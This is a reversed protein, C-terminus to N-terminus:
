VGVRRQVMETRVTYYSLPNSHAIAHARMVRAATDVDDYVGIIIDCCLLIYVYDPAM